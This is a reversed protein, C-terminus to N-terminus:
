VFIHWISKRNVNGLLDTAASDSETELGQRYRLDSDYNNGGCKIKEGRERLNSSVMFYYSQSALPLQINYHSDRWADQWFSVNPSISILTSAEALTLLSM